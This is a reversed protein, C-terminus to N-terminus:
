LRGEAEGFRNRSHSSPHELAAAKDIRIGLGRPGDQSLRRLLCRESEFLRPWLWALDRRTKPPHNGSWLANTDFLHDALLATESTIEIIATFLGHRGEVGIHSFWFPYDNSVAGIADSWPAPALFEGLLPRRGVSPHSRVLIAAFAEIIALFTSANTEGFWVSSPAGGDLASHIDTELAAIAHLAMPVLDESVSGARSAVSEADLSRLCCRCILRSGNGSAAHMIPRSCGCHQYLRVLPRGHRSCVTAWAMGWESRIHQHGHALSDEHLCAPCYAPDIALPGLITGTSPKFKPWAWSFWHWPFNPYAVALLLQFLQSSPLRVADALHTLLDPPARFDFHPPVLSGSAKAGSSAIWGLLTPGDLEYRCAIRGLWSSLLEGERPRSASPLHWESAM